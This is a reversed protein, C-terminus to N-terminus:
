SNRNPSHIRYGNKFMELFYFFKRLKEVSIENVAKFKASVLLTNFGFENLFTFNLMESNMEIDYNNSNKDLFKVNELYSLYIIQNYDNLLIKLPKFYGVIQLFCNLFLFNKSIKIKTQQFNNIISQLETRKQSTFYIPKIKAVMMKWHNISSKNYQSITKKVLNLNELSLIDRPKLFLIQDKYAKLINSNIVMQSTVQNDNMYFNEEHSFYIFSAFPIVIKPMLFEIQLRIRQLKEIGASKRKIPDEPNGIWEAYGFQTFM